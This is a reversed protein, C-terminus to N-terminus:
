KIKKNKYSMIYVMRHGHADQLRTDMIIIFHYENTHPVNHYLYGIDYHVRLGTTGWTIVQLAVLPYWKVKFHKNHTHKYIYKGSERRINPGIGTGDPIGGKPAAGTRM